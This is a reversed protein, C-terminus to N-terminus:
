EPLGARVAHFCGQLRRLAEWYHVAKLDGLKDPGCTGPDTNSLVYLSKFAPSAFYESAQQVWYDVDSKNPTLLREHARKRTAWDQRERNFTEIRQNLEGRQAHLQDRVGSLRQSDANLQAAQANCSEVLAVDTSEKPCRAQRQAAAKELVALDANYKRIDADLARSAERLDAETQDLGKGEAALQASVPELKAAEELLLDGEQVLADLKLRDVDAAHAAPVCALAFILLFRRCRPQALSM